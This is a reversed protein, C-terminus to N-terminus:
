KGVKFYYKPESPKTTKFGGGARSYLSCLGLENEVVTDCEESKDCKTFCQAMTSHTSLAVPKKKTFEINEQLEFNDERSKKSKKKVKPIDVSDSVNVPVDLAGTVSMAVEEQAQAQSQAQVQTQAMPSVSESAGPSPLSSSPEAPAAPEAPPGQLAAIRRQYYQFNTHIYENTLNVNQKRIVCKQEENNYSFGQCDVNSKCQTSCDYFSSSSPVPEELGNQAKRDGINNVQFDHLFTNFENPLATSKKIYTKANENPKVYNTVSSKLYCRNSNTDMFFALCNSDKSCEAKCEDITVNSMESGSIGQLENGLMIYYNDDLPENYVMPTSPTEVPVTPPPSIAAAEMATQAPAQSSDDVMSPPYPVLPDSSVSSPPEPEPISPPPETKDRKRFVTLFLIVMIIIIVIVSIVIVFKYDTIFQPLQM